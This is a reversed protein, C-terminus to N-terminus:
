LRAQFRQLIWTATRFLEDEALARFPDHATVRAERREEFELEYHVGFTTLVIRRVSDTMPDEDAGVVLGREFLGDIEPDAIAPAVIAFGPEDIRSGIAFLCARNMHDGLDDATTPRLAFLGGHMPERCAADRTAVDPFVHPRLLKGVQVLVRGFAEDRAGRSLAEDTLVQETLVFGRGELEHGVWAMSYPASRGRGTVPGDIRRRSSPGGRGKGNRTSSAVNERTRDDMTGDM